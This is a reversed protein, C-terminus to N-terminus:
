PFLSVGDLTFKVANVAQVESVRFRECVAGFKVFAQLSNSNHKM